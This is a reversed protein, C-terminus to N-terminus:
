GLASLVAIVGDVDLGEVRVGTRSTVVISPEITSRTGDEVVRVPRLSQGDPKTARKTHWRRLSQQSIGLESAIDHLTAGMRQRERTYSVAMAQLEAGYRWGRGGRQENLEMARKCFAEATEHM